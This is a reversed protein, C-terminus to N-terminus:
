DAPRPPQQKMRTVFIAEGDIAHIRLKLEQGWRYGRKTTNVKPIQENSLFAQVGEALIVLENESMVATITVFVGEDNIASITGRVQDGVSITPTPKVVPEELKPVRKQSVRVRKKTKNVSLLVVKQPSGIEPDPSATSLELNPIVADVTVAKDGVFVPTDLMVVVGFNIKGTVRCSLVESESLQELADLAQATLKEAAALQNARIVIRGKMPGEREGKFIVALPKGKLAEPRLNRDLFYNPVFVNHRGLEGDFTGLLAVLSNDKKWRAGTVTIIAVEQREIHRRVKADRSPERIVKVTSKSSGSKGAPKNHKCPPPASGITEDAGSRVTIEVQEEPQEPLDEVEIQMVTGKEDGDGAVHTEESPVPPSGDDFTKPVHEEPQNTGSGNSGDLLGHQTLYENLAAFDNFTVEQRRRAGPEHKSM